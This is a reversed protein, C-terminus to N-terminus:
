SWAQTRRKGAQQTQEADSGPIVKVGALQGKRTDYTKVCV